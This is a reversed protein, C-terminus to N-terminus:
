FRLKGKFKKALKMIQKQSFGGGALDSESVGGKTMEKILKYQKILQRIDSTTTGSGKAIRGLRTTQKEIIEPNKIEEETMSSIAHQWRKIKEEQIGLMNEPIKDKLGSFGPIMDLMKSMSGMSSMSKIQEQFDRLDFEGKELKDKLNKQSDKDTASQVKELLGELDGMGLIRSIFSQPNFSELEHSKEGTGIFFVPAKTEHCATLAGGAKATSDMRTIIVGNIELAKQFESAQTKAAQGIDAQIVLIKYDPKINKNLDKIEKVLEEDLSHRGATDIILLDYDNLEEKYKKYIKLANKENKDVFCALKNQKALQELQDSAAPRHVDLGLLCVKKGRKSYYLGLKGATTTNHVIFGEAIFSHNDEVTLDYVYMEDNKIQKIEKVPIWCVNSVALNDLLNIEESSQQGIAQLCSRGESTLILEDNENKILNRNKLQYSIGNLFQSSYKELNKDEIDKFFEKFIGTKKLKYYAVLKLLKERSILGKEEYRGYSYVANTQIEGISFGGGNRLKKLISGLPLMDQNGCGEKLGIEQYKNVRDLKHKVLYGLKKAYDEAYRSKIILRWYYINNIIKNSITSIIGFRKLLMNMQQILIQSESSLEIQRRDRAAFSDCDFYAKIFVRITENNSLTIQPPISLKKGKKGPVLNFISMLNVLTKSSLIIRYMRTTRFDRKISPYINFLIKSLEKIRLIIESDENVIQIYNKGITGDGMLYGLFEALESTLFTPFTIAKQSNRGKLTIMSPFEKNFLEIPLIGKKLDTTLQCYNRNFKLNKSLKKMVKGSIIEKIEEQVLYIDLNLKRIEESLSQLNGSINIDRPTAIYDTENIEDARVKEVKGNRLVFFPHEPTVKISFDNGNDLSIQYLNEKKLKWLHTAKKNEIKLTNPNFSPVLIEQGRLDIIEGDKLIAPQNTKRYNEYLEKIKPVEGSSLQVKSNGHVCKGSGYLGCLMIITQKDKNLILEKKEKGLIELITDYLIKIIIEKKEIGKIKEDGAKEKIKDTIEKVLHINVDAGILARQLEKSVEDIVAKDVFVAKSIKSTAKKLAESLKELM